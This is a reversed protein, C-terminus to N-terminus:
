GFMEDLAEYAKELITQSIWLSSEALRGIASKAEVYQLHGIASAWLVIGLSGHVELGMANAFIRASNDDTLLWDAKLRQALIIAESEGAGLLGSSHLVEAQSSEIESLIEVLIWSPRQDKWFNDIETLEIDVIEPIFVKGRKTLLDLLDAERLHLIPGTDCVVIKM